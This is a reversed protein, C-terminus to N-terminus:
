RGERNAHTAELTAPRKVPGSTQRLEALMQKLHAHVAPTTSVLLFGAVQNVDAYATGGAPASQEALFEVASIYDQAVDAPSPSPELDDGPGNIWLSSSRSRIQSFEHRIRELGADVSETAPINHLYRLDSEILDRIDYLQTINCKASIDFESGIALTDGRVDFTLPSSEGSTGGAQVAPVARLVERLATEVTVNYLRLKVLAAPNYNLKEIATWDVETKIGAHATVSEVAKRFPVNDFQVRTLRARLKAEIPPPKQLLAKRLTPATFAILLVAVVLATRKASRSRKSLM